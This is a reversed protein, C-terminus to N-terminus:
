SLEFNRRKSNKIEIKSWNRQFLLLNFHFSLFTTWEKHSSFFFIMKVPTTKKKRKRGKHQARFSTFKLKQSIINKKLPGKHVRSTKKKKNRHLELTWRGMTFFLFVALTHQATRPERVIKAPANNNWHCVHIIHNFIWAHHWLWSSFIRSAFGQGEACVKVM